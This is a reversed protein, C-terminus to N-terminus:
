ESKDIAPTVKRIALLAAEFDFARVALMVESYATTGLLAKCAPGTKELLDIAAGDGMDLLNALQQLSAEATRRDSSSVTAVPLVAAAQQADVPEGELVRTIAMMAEELALELEELGAKAVAFGATRLQHELTAASQQLAHAGILGATGKLSHALRHALALDASAFAERIPHRGPRHDEAFRRLIRLYLAGNGLLRTTAGATDLVNAHHVM